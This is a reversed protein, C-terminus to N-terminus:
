SPFHEVHTEATRGFYVVRRGLISVLYGPCGAAMIMGRFDEYSHANAQSLRVATEVAAADFREAVAAATRHGAIEISEGDPLYYVKVGRRLDAYYAEIGAAALKALTQPFSLHGDDSAKSCEEAVSKAHTNM